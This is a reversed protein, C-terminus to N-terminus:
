FGSHLLYHIYLTTTISHLCRYVGPNTKYFFDKYDDMWVDAIRQTNHNLITAVGGPWSYPSVKRFVHGVRSCTM